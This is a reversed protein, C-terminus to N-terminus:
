VDADDFAGRAISVENSGEIPTNHMRNPTVAVALRSAEDEIEFAGAATRPLSVRAPRSTGGYVTTTGLRFRARHLAIRTAASTGRPTEIPVDPSSADGVDCSSTAVALMLPVLAPRYSKKM